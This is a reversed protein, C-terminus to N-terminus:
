FINQSTKWLWKKIFSKAQDLNFHGRKCLFKNM